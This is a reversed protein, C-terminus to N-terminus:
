GSVKLTPLMRMSRIRQEVKFEVSEQASPKVVLTVSSEHITANEPLAAPDIKLTWTGPQRGAFRFEGNGNTLRRYVQEGSTVEVLIGGLGRAPKLERAAPRLAKPPGGRGVQVFTQSPLLGADPEYVQVIGGITAGRIYPLKVPVQAETLLDVEVPMAEVPIMGVPLHGGAVTLEYLGRPVSPFSFNGREDTIAVARDMKLVINGLGKGTEQDFVQGRLTAVDTRRMTPVQIPITYSLMLNVDANVGSAAQAQVGITHGNDRRYNYQANAIVQTRGASQQGQVNLSFSSKENFDLGASLGLTPWDDGGAADGRCPDISDNVYAGLTLKRSPRWFLSGRYGHAPVTEGTLQYRQQAQNYQDYHYFGWLSWPKGPPAYGLDLHARNQDQFEGAYHPDAYLLNLRWRWPAGLKVLDLWYAAGHGQDGTSGAVELDLSLDPRLQVQQRLSLVQNHGDQTNRIDLYNLGVWWNPGLAHNISLGTERGPHVSGGGDYGNWDQEHWVSM